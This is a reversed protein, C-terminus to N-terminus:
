QSFEVRLVSFGTAAGSEVKAWEAIRHGVVWAIDQGSMLLPVRDRWDGPVKSDIFFNHLRKEVTMGLPQFRDGPQRTRVWIGKQLSGADFFATLGDQRLPDQRCYETVLQAKIRWNGVRTETAKEMQSPLEIGHQGEVAPLPCPLRASESLVVADYTVHLWLGRPLGVRFGSKGQLLIRSIGSLHSEELRRADGVLQVLGKRLLQRQMASHLAALGPRDFRISKGATVADTVESAVYRWLRDGERELYDLDLAVTRSLRVLADTVRPNYDAALRPLL